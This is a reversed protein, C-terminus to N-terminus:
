RMGLLNVGAIRVYRRGTNRNVLDNGDRELEFTLGFGTTVVIRNGVRTYTMVTTREFTGAANFSVEILEGQTTLITYHFSTTTRGEHVFDVRSRFLEDQAFVVTTITMFLVAIIIKKM